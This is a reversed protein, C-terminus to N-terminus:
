NNSYSNSIIAFDKFDTIGDYNIDSWKYNEGDLTENLWENCVPVIDYIDVKGDLIGTGSESAIDGEVIAPAEITWIAYVGEGKDIVNPLPITTIANLTKDVNIKDSPNNIDYAIVKRYDLGTTNTVKIKLSNRANSIYGKVGLKAEAGPSNEPIATTDLKEEFPTFYVELGNPWPRTVSNSDYIDRGENADPLTKVFGTSYSADQSYNAIQFTAGRAEGGSLGYGAIAIAEIMVAYKANNKIFNSVSKGSGKVSSIIKELRGSKSQPKMKFEM